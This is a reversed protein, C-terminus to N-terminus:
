QLDEVKKRYATLPSARRLRRISRLGLRATLFFLAFGVALGLPVIWWGLVDKSGPPVSDFGLRISYSYPDAADPIQWLGATHPHIPKLLACCILSASLFYGVISGLLVLFGAFSLSAWRFLSRLVLVPSSSALARVQLDDALYMGALDQPSLLAILVRDVSDPALNGSTKDVIHSRLEEVIDRVQEAPLRRLAAALEQLYQKMKRQGIEPDTM